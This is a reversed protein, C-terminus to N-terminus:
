ESGTYGHIDRQKGVTKESRGAEPSKWAETEVGTFHGKPVSTSQSREWSQGQWTGRPLLCEQAPTAGLSVEGLGVWPGSVPRAGIAWGAGGRLDGPAWCPVLVALSKFPDTPSSLLLSHSAM